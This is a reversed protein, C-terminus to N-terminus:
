VHSYHDFTLRCNYRCFFANCSSPYGSFGLMVLATTVPGSTAPQTLSFWSSYKAIPHTTQQLVPQRSCGRPIVQSWRTRLIKFHHSHGSLIYKSLTLPKRSTSIALAYALFVDRSPPRGTTAHTPSFPQSLYMAIPYTSQQIKLHCSYIRSNM